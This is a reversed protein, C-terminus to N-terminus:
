KLLLDIQLSVSDTFNTDKMDNSFFSGSINAEEKEFNFKCISDKQYENHIIFGKQVLENKYHEFIFDQKAPLNTWELLYTDKHDMIPRTMFRKFKEFNTLKLLDEESSLDSVPILKLDKDFYIVFPALVLKPIYAIKEARKGKEQGPTFIISHLSDNDYLPIERLFVEPLDKLEKSRPGATFKIVILSIVFIFIFFIFSTFCAHRLCSGRKNLEELPPEKIEIKDIEQRM